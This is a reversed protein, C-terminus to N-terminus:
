AYLDIVRGTAPIHQQFLTEQRTEAKVRPEVALVEGLKPLLPATTTEAPTSREFTDDPRSLRNSELFRHYPIVGPIADYPDRPRTSIACRVVPSVLHVDHLGVNSM